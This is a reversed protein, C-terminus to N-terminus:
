VPTIPGGGAVEQIVFFDSATASFTPIKLKVPFRGRTIFVPKYHKASFPM